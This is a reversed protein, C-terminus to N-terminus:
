ADVLAALVDTDLVEVSTPADFLGVFRWDDVPAFPADPALPTPLVGASAAAKFPPDLAGATLLAGLAAAALPGVFAGTPWPTDLAGTALPATLGDSDVLEGVGANASFRVCTWSALPAAVDAPDVGLLTM